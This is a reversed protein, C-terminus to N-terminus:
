KSTKTVLKLGFPDEIKLTEESIPLGYVGDASKGNEFSFKTVFTEECIYTEFKNFIEELKDSETFIKIEIRDDVKLNLAPTKRMQQIRNVMERALGEEILEADLTCDLDITIFRNTIAQTGPKANRFVLIEESNFDVGNLTVTGGSEIKQVDTSSLKEILPKFAGMEKGLKKGLVPLNPKASLVVYDAENTAYEVSKVNLEIKIFEELKKM